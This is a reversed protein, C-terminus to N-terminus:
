RAPRRPLGATFHNAWTWEKANGARDCFVNTEGGSSLRQSAPPEKGVSGETGQSLAHPSCGKEELRTMRTSLSLHEDGSCRCRTNILGIHTEVEKRLSCGM